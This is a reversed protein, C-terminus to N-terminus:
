LYTSYCGIGTYLSLPRTRSVPLGIQYSEYGLCIDSHKMCHRLFLNQGDWFSFYLIAWGLSSFFLTSIITWGLSIFFSTNGVGFFFILTAWELSPSFFATNGIASQGETGVGSKSRWKHRSNNVKVMSTKCTTQKISDPLLRM